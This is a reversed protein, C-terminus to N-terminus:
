VQLGPTARHKRSFGMGLALGVVVWPYTINLHAGFWNSVPQMMALSLLWPDAHHRRLFFAPRISVWTMFIWLPVGWDVIYDIPGLSPSDLNTLAFATGQRYNPDDRVLSYNGWGIGIWPHAAVMRPALVAGSVRGMVFNFDGAHLNSVKDYMASEVVYVNVKAPIDALYGLIAFVVAVGAITVWRKIGKQSFIMQLFAIVLLAFFGGKSQTGAFALVFILISLRYQRRSLWGRHFMAVTLLIVTVLYTGYSGAENNFGRMRHADSYVGGEFGFLLNLPFSILSYLAGAVGVWYYVNAGFACLKEDERYISAMYLMYFVDLFLEVMRSVTVILPRKFFTYSPIFFDQQLVILALVFVVVFFFAYNLGLSFFPRFIHVKGRNRSFLLMLVVFDAVFFLELYQIEGFKLLITVSLVGIVLALLYHHARQFNWNEPLTM